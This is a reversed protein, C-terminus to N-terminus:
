GGFIERRMLEFSFKHWSPSKNCNNIFWNLYSAPVEKLLTDKYKGFGVPSNAEPGEILWTGTLRGYKSLVDYQGTSDAVVKMDMPDGFHSFNDVLDYVVAGPKNPHPRVARGLLQYWLTLSMTPRACIVTDLKPFDFGLALVKVNVIAYINGAKFEALIAVRQKKPTKSSVLETSFGHRILKEKVLQSEAITPLYIAIHKRGSKQADEVALMIRDLIDISENYAIVSEETYESGSSNVILINKNGSQSVKYEPRVLFGKQALEDCQSIHLFEKFIKPRTRTLMRISASYGGQHLRYPTATLGVLVEPGLRAILEEYMGGEANVLHAEDIILNRFHYFAEKRNIVSGITAYTARGIDKQGMSASFIQVDDLGAKQAKDFNQELIEKSPQLILTPYSLANVIETIVHSKGSGTPMVILGKSRELAALAAKAQYPRPTPLM